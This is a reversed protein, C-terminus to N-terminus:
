VGLTRKCIDGARQCTDVEFWGWHCESVPIGLEGALWQYAEKRKMGKIDMVTHFHRKNDRRAWRLSEDALTGVPIDTFPHLGTYAGCSECLYVYPWEGFSRGGYVEAHRGIFVPSKPGCYRCSEPVPLPNKVRKLAKRSVLPLPHPPELMEQNFARADLNDM